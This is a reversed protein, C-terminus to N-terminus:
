YFVESAVGNVVSVTALGQKGMPCLYNVVIITQVSPGSEAQVAAASGAQGTNVLKCGCGALAETTMGVEPLCRGKPLPASCGAIVGALALGAIPLASRTRRRTLLQARGLLWRVARGFRESLPQL